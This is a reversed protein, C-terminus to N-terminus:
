AIIRATRRRHILWFVGMLSLVLGGGGLYPATEAEFAQLEIRNQRSKEYQIVTTGGTSLEWVDETGNYLAAIPRGLLSRVQEESIDREPLTLKILEGDANKIELNYTVRRTRGSTVKTASDLVGAAQSLAAREPLEEQSLDISFWAFGVILIGVVVLEWPTFLRRLIWGIM